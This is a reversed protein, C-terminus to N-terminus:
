RGVQPEPRRLLLAFALVHAIWLVPVLITVVYWFSGMGLRAVDYRIGGVLANVLDAAGVVNTLWVLAIAFGLRMRLALVTVIALVSTALDGYAVGAAFDRPLATGAVSTVLVTAGIPRFAHVFTLATFATRRDVSKLWPWAYWWALLGFVIFSLLNQIGFVAFADVVSLIARGLGRDLADAVLCPTVKQERVVRRHPLLYGVMAPALEVGGPIPEHRHEVTRHARDAAAEPHDACRGPEAELNPDATVGTFNDEHGPERVPSGRM